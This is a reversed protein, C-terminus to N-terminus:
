RTCSASSSAAVSSSRKKLASAGGAGAAEQHGIRRHLRPMSWRSREGSRHAARCAGPPSEVDDRLRRVRTVTWSGPRLADSGPRAGARSARRRGRRARRGPRTSASSVIWGVRRRRDSLLPHRLSADVRAELDGLRPLALPGAVRVDPADPGVLLQELAAVLALRIAVSRVTRSRGPQVRASRRMRVNRMPRGILLSRSSCSRSLLSLASAIKLLSLM